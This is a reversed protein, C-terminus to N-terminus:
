RKSAIATRIASSSRTTGSTIIRDHGPLAMLPVALKVRPYGRPKGFSGNRKGKLSHFALQESSQLSFFFFFFFSAAAGGALLEGAAGFGCHHWARLFSFGGALTAPSVPAQV